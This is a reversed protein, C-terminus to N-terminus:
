HRRKAGGAIAQRVKVHVKEQAGQVQEDYVANEDGKGGVEHDFVQPESGYRTYVLDSGFPAAVEYRGNQNHDKYGADPGGEVEDPLVIELAADLSEDLLVPYHSLAGVDRVVGDLLAVCLDGYGSFGERFFGARSEKVLGGFVADLRFPYVDRLVGKTHALALHVVEKVLDVGARVCLYLLICSQYGCHLGAQVLEGRLYRNETLLYGRRLGYLGNIRFFFLINKCIRFLGSDKCDRQHSPRTTLCLDAFGAVATRNRKAGGLIARCM